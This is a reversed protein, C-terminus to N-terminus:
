KNDKIQCHIFRTHTKLITIDFDINNKWLPWIRDSFGEPAIEIFNPWNMRESIKRARNSNFMTEMFALIDPNFKSILNRVLSSFGKQGASRINCSIIKM